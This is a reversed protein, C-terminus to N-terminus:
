DEREYDRMQQLLEEMRTPLPDYSAPFLDRLGGEFFSRARGQLFM